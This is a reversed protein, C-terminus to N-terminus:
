KPKVVCEQFDDYRVEFELVSEFTIRKGINTELINLHLPIGANNKQGSPILEIKCPQYSGKVFVRVPWWIDEYAADPISLTKKKGIKQIELSTVLIDKSATSLSISKPLNSEINQRIAKKIESNNPKSVCALLLLVLTCIGIHKIKM